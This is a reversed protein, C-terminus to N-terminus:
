MLMLCIEMGGYIGRKNFDYRAFVYLDTNDKSDILKM